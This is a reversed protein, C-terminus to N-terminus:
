LALDGCCSGAGEVRFKPVRLEELCYLACLSFCITDGPVHSSIDSQGRIVGCLM